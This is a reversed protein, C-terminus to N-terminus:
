GRPIRESAGRRTLIPDILAETIIETPPLSAGCDNVLISAAAYPPAGDNWPLQASSRRDHRWIPLGGAISQPLKQQTLVTGDFFVGRPSQGIAASEGLWTVSLAFKPPRHQLRAHGRVRPPCHHATPRAWIAAPISAKVRCVPKCRRCSGSTRNFSFLSMVGEPGNFSGPPRAPSRFGSYRSASSGCLPPRL